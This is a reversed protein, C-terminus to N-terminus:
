VFGKGDLRKQGYFGRDGGSPTRLGKPFHFAPPKRRRRNEEVFKECYCSAVNLWECKAKICVQISVPDLNVRRKCDEDCPNRYITPEFKYDGLPSIKEENVITDYKSCHEVQCISKDYCQLGLRRRPAKVLEKPNVRFGNYRIFRIPM